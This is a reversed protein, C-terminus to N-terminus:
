TRPPAGTLHGASHMCGHLQLTLKMCQREGPTIFLRNDAVFLQPSILFSLTLPGLIHSTPKVYGAQLQVLDPAAIYVSLGVSGM